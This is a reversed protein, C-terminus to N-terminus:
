SSPRQEQEEQGGRPKAKRTGSGRSGSSGSPTVTGSGGRTAGGPTVVGGGRGDGSRGDGVRRPANSRFLQGLGGSPMNDNPQVRTYGRGKVVRGGYRSGPILIPRYPRYYYGYGFPAFFPDYYGYAYWPYAWGGRYHGGYGAAREGSEADAGDVLFYDPYSLAVMLDIVNGPVEADALYLLLDSSMPFPDDKELLMAEVAAADVVQLAEVVDEADLPASSAQRAARTALTALGSDREVDRDLRRYRRVLVERQGEVESVQIDSWSGSDTLLTIGSTRVPVGDCTHEAAVLLRDGDASFRATESGTCGGEEVQRSRGDAVIQQTMVEEDDVRTTLQVALPEAGASLCVRRDGEPLREGDADRDIVLEWCGLWPAWPNEDMSEAAATSPGAAAGVMLALVATAVIAGARLKARM